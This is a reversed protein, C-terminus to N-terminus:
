EGATGDVILDVRAIPSERAVYADESPIWDELWRPMVESLSRRELSWRALARALRVDLPCAVWVTLSWPARVEHRTSSVGEVIVVSGPAIDHWEAGSDTPWDWRQYRAVRGAILPAVVQEDFRTWDWDPISPSAFDDIHVVAVGPVAAAVLAALSTKGSAGYGDIGVFGSGLRTVAAVVDAASARRSM